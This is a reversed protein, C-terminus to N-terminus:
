FSDESNRKAACLIYNVQHCTSHLRWDNLIPSGIIGDIDVVKADHKSIFQEMEQPTVFKNWDHTGPPLLRFVYEAAGIALLYSMITRNITSLFLLGGPKVLKLLSEVFVDPDPVHEVVEMSCVIDCKVKDSILDDAVGCRYDIRSTEPDFSAHKQAAKINESGPDVAVISGGLRCLAESLIGGGCGIDAISLNHLPKSVNTEKFHHISHDRIYRVRVRNMQHLLNVSSSVNPKWWNDAVTNFKAVERDIVSSFRREFCSFRKMGGYM